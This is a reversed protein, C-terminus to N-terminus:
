KEYVEIETIGAVPGNTATVFVRMRDTQVPAFSHTAMDGSQGTAKAMDRWEGNVWAQVAYDRLSKDFPYVVVRGVTRAQPLKVELWDPGAKETIDHWGLVKYRDEADVVGDVVHWLGTDPRRFKGSTSSVSVVVGDGEFEQYALNGPKRRAANAAAIQAEIEKVTALKPVPGTSYVHVEWTDFHDSIQDGKVAVTRGESAVNLAKARKGLGPITVKLDRAEMGANCVLAWLQGEREKLLVKVKDQDATAKTDPTAAVLVDELAALEKTLAPMGIYLEPYHAVMRNFQITGRAGCILALLNQNRYERYNPVRNNVAGYDGYNFGQHLYAITQRHPQDAFYQVAGETFTAVEALDNHPKDRLVVPYPHLGNIDACRAYNRLGEMSDNSIIIPHYPDADALTAYVQELAKAPISACEPEDSVYYGFLKPNQALKEAHERLKAAAEATVGENRLVKDDMGHMTTTDLLKTDGPKEGTFANYEPVYDQAYNWAGTVFFPKGDVYWQLDQGLWVEGKRYALKRLPQMTEAVSKGTQDYLTAVIEMKGEPLNAVPFKVAVTEPVPSVTKTVIAKSGGEPRIDVVLRSKERVSAELRVETELSVEALKQTSFIANRYWPALLKIAVPVYELRMAVKRYALPAKTVPDAIRVTCSYEGQEAVMVPGLTVQQEAGPAAEVSGSASLVKGSPSVLWADCLRAGAQGTLNRVPAQLSLELKGERLSKQQVPTGIAWCYRSVDAKVGQLEVFRSAINFAGQDAISSLEGPQRKERCVNLGWKGAREPTLGLCSFPVVLECSWYDPGVFSAAQATSDWSMDGVFGGQTCARDAITGSANVGIHYYDNQSHGPDLMIEVCDTRFVNGNDRPLAETLLQKIEPDGCRVGFYLATDDYLVVVSTQYKAPTNTNMVLFRDFAKGAAWCPEDLKGDLAPVRELRTAQVATQGQVAVPVLLALVLVSLVLSKMTMEWIHRVLWAPRLDASM